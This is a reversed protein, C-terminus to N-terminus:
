TVKVLTVEPIELIFFGGNKPFVNGWFHRSKIKEKPKNLRKLLYNLFNKEKVNKGSAV